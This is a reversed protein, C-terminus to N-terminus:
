PLAPATASASSFAGEFKQPKNTWEGAAHSYVHLQDYFSFHFDGDYGVWGIAAGDPCGSSGTLRGRRDLECELMKWDRGCLILDPKCALVSLSEAHLLASDLFVFGPEGRMARAAEVPGAVPFHTKPNM